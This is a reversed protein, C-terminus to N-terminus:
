KKDKHGIETITRLEGGMTIERKDVWGYNNKLHFITIVKDYKKKFAGMVARTELM